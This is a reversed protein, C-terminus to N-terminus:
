FRSVISVYPQLDSQIAKTSFERGQYSNSPDVRDELSSKSYQVRRYILSPGIFTSSSLQFGYGFNVYFGSGDTNKYSLDSIANGAADTYKMEYNWESNFIYSAILKWGGYLFGVAPGYETHHTIGSKAEGGERKSRVTLLNYSGGLFWRGSFAYGAILKSDLGLDTDTGPNAEGAFAGGQPGYYNNSNSWVPLFATEFYFNGIESPAAESRSSLGVFLFVTNILVLVKGFKSM